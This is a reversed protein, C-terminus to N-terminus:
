LPEAGEPMKGARRILLYGQQYVAAIKLGFLSLRDQCGKLRARLPHLLADLPERRGSARAAELRENIQIAPEESILVLLRLYSTYTPWDGLLTKILPLEDDDFLCEARFTRREWDVLTLRGSITNLVLEQDTPLLSVGRGADLPYYEYWNHERNHISRKSGM